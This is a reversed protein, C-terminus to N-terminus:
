GVASGKEVVRRLWRLAPLASASSLFVLGLVAFPAHYASQATVVLSSRDVWHGVAWQASSSLGLCLTIFLGFVRGRVRPPFIEALAADSITFSATSFFGAVILPVFCLSGPVRPVLSQAAAAGVLTGLLWRWRRPGDSRAGLLPTSVIGPLCNLGLYFGSRAVSFEFAQQLYLPTLIWIGWSAFDRLSFLVGALVLVGLAPWGIGLPKAGPAVRRAAPSGLRQPGDPEHAVRLFITAVVLGLLAVVACMGRWGIAQGLAGGVTPGVSFGVASGVGIIGLARGPRTPMLGAALANAPPHYTGAVLGAAGILVLALGYSRTLALALFILTNLALAGGLLKRRSFRDALFGAPLNALGYGAAQVTGMLAIPSLTGFGFDRQMVLYLPPLVASFGHSFAHLAAL